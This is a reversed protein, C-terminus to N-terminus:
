SCASKKSRCRERNQTDGRMNTVPLSCPKHPVSHMLSLVADKIAQKDADSGIDWRTKVIHELLHLGFHRVM